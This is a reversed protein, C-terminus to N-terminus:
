TVSTKENGGGEQPYPRLPKLSSLPASNTDHLKNGLKGYKVKESSKM